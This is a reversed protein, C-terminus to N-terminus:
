FDMNEIMNYLYEHEEKTLKYEGLINKIEEENYDM